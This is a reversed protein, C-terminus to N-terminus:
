ILLLLLLVQLSRITSARRMKWDGLIQAIKVDSGDCLAGWFKSTSTSRTSYGCSETSSLDMWNVWDSRGIANFQFFTREEGLETFCTETETRGLSGMPASICWCLEHRWHRGALLPWCRVDQLEWPIRGWPGRAKSPLWSTNRLCDWTTSGHDSRRSYRVHMHEETCWAENPLSCNSSQLSSSSEFLRIWTDQVDLTM